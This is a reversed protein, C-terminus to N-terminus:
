FPVGDDSGPPPESRQSYDVYPPMDEATLYQARDLFQVKHPLWTLEITDTPGDRHKAVRVECLNKNDRDKFRGKIEVDIGYYEPRYLFLIEDADQEIDGTERLDAMIPRKELKSRIEPARSLQSLCLVVINLDKAMWKLRKTYEGVEVRRNEAKVGSLLQLYDVMLVEIGHQSKLRRARARIQDIHQLGSDDIWIPYEKFKEVERRAAALATKTIIGEHPRSGDDNPRGQMLCRMLLEVATSEISAIAGPHGQSAMYKIIGLAFATKGMSPRGAIIVLHGPVVGGMIKDLDKHGTSIGPILGLEAITEIRKITEPLYSEFSSFGRPDLHDSLEFVRGQAEEATMENAYIGESAEHLAALTARENARDLVIQCYHEIGTASPLQEMLGTIYFAGGVRELNGQEQLRNTVTLTDIPEGTESLDLMAQYITSHAMKYFHTPRLIGMAVAAADESLLICNLVASEMELNQPLVRLDDSAM